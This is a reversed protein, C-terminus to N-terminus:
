HSLQLCSIELESIDRSLKSPCPASLEASSSLHFFSGIPSLETSLLLFVNFRTRLQLLIKVIEVRHLSLPLSPPNSRSLCFFPFRTEFDTGTDRRKQIEIYCTATSSRSSLRYICRTQCSRRAASWFSKLNCRSVIL